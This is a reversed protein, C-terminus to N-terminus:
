LATCPLDTGGATAPPHNNKDSVALAGRSLYGSFLYHVRLGLSRFLPVLNRKPQRTLWHCLITIEDAGM